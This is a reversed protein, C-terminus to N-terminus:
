RLPADGRYYMYNTIRRDPPRIASRPMPGGFQEMLTGNEIWARTVKGRIRPPPILQQADLILDDGDVVVGSVNKM